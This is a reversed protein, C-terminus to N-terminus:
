AGASPGKWANLADRAHERMWDPTSVGIDGTSEFARVYLAFRRAAARLREPRVYLDVPESVLVSVFRFPSGKEELARNAAAQVAWQSYKDGASPVRFRFARGSEVFGIELESGSPGYDRRAALEPETLERQYAWELSLAGGTAAGYRMLLGDHPAPVTTGDPHHEIGQQVSALVDPFFAEGSPNDPDEYGHDPAKGVVGMEELGSMVDRITLGRVYWILATLDEPSFLSLARAVWARGEAGGHELLFRWPFFSLLRQPPPASRPGGRRRVAALVAEAVWPLDDPQALDMAEQFADRPPHYDGSAIQEQISSAWRAREEGVMPEAGARASPARDPSHLAFAHAVHGVEEGADEHGLLEALYARDQSTPALMGVRFQQYSGGWFCLARSAQGRVDSNPHILLQLLVTKGSKRGLRELLLTAIRARRIGEAEALRAELEDATFPSQGEDCDVYPTGQNIYSEWRVQEAARAREHHARVSALAEPSSDVNIKLRPM